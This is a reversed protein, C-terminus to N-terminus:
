HLYGEIKGIMFANTTNSATVDVNEGGVIYITNDSICARLDNLGYPLREALLDYSDTQTDYVWALDSYGGILIGRKSDVEVSQYLLEQDFLPFRVAGGILIIYRDAYAVAQHGSLKVPMPSVDTWRDTSCDYKSVQDFRELHRVNQEDVWCNYGGFLYFCGGVAAACCGVRPSFPLEGLDMWGAMPHNLDLAEVRTVQDATFAGGRTREWEGGGACIALNGVVALAGDARGQHLPPLETWKWKEDMRRLWWADNLSAPGQPTSKRGGILLMGDGATAGSTYCRGLPLPTTPFWDRRESDYYWSLESERWPQSMGAAYVPAGDVIGMAGGKILTPFWRGESWAIKM